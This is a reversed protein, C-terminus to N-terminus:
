IHYSVCAGQSVRTSAGVLGPTWFLFSVGRWIVSGNCAPISCM